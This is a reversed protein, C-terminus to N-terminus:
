SGNQARTRIAFNILSEARRVRETPTLNLCGQIQSIDGWDLGFESTELETFLAPLEKPGSEQARKKM